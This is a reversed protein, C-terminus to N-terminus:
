VAELIKRIHSTRNLVYFHIGPVGRELLERTQEVCQAIGIEVARRNDDGADRLKKELTAPIKAGCLSSIRMVQRSSLVPMLGPVVPVDIGADRVREVYDFYHRNDFFLQTIIADAGARVKKGLNAVDEEFSPAELHKEPYGAVAISFRSSSNEKERGRVHEVLENAHSFAGRSLPDRGGDRPVDGRLAVINGIGEGEMRELMLDIEGASYGMCTIHCASEVGLSNKVYSAVELNQKRGGGMAGHTVTIMDPSLEVLEALATKLKEFEADDKPPFVEFSVLPRNPPKNGYESFNM